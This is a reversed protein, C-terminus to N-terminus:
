QKNITVILFNESIEVIESLDPIEINVEQFSEITPQVDVTQDPGTVFVFKEKTERNDDQCTGIYDHSHAGRLAMEVFSSLYKERILEDSIDIRLSLEDENGQRNLQDIITRQNGVIRELHQGNFALNDRSCIPEENWLHSKISNFLPIDRLAEPIIAGNTACHYLAGHAIFCMDMDHSLMYRYSRKNM